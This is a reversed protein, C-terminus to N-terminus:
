GTMEGIYLPTFTVTITRDSSSRVSPCLTQLKSLNKEKQRKEGLAHVAQLNSCEQEEANANTLLLKTHSHTM